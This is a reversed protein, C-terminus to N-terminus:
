EFRCEVRVESARPLEKLLINAIMQGNESCDGNEVKYSKAPEGSTFLVTIIAFIM